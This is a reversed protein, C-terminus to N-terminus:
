NQDFWAAANPSRSRRWVVGTRSESYWPDPSRYWKAHGDALLYNEGDSHRGRTVVYAFNANGGQRKEVCATATCRTDDGETWVSNGRSPALLVTQAPFQISALRQVPRWTSPLYNADNSAMVFDNAAYSSSPRGVSSGNATRAFDPCFFVSLRQNASNAINQPFNAKVYPDVIFQWPTNNGGPFPYNALPFTEDYDQAYAMIAVGLQKLNSLCTAARAKARAQAFVPFLIAALIAIIAIVVLLEILTFGRARPRRWVM